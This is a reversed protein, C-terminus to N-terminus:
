TWRIILMVLKFQVLRQDNRDVIIETSPLITHHIINIYLVGVCVCVCYRTPQMIDNMIEILDNYM